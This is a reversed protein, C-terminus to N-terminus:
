YYNTIICICMKVYLKLSTRLENTTLYFKSHTCKYLAHRDIAIDVVMNGM